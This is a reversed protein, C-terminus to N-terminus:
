AGDRRDRISGRSAALTLDNNHKETNQDRLIKLLWSEGYIELMDLIQHVAYSEVADFLLFHRISDPLFRLLNVDRNWEEDPM